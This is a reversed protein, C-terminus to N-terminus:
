GSGAAAGEAPPEVDIASALEARLLQRRRIGFAIVFGALSVLAGAFADLFFHNGTVVIAIGQLIPLAFGFARLLPHRFMWVFTIGIVLAWGFHLSPVAAFPNAFAGMSENQYSVDSFREMTDVFGLHPMLRPPAAPFWFYIALGIAGSAILTNRLFMYVPRQWIYLPVAMVLVLPFHGWFYVANFFDILWQHPLFLSQIQAERFIGLNRELDVISAGRHFAEAARDAVAGRVMEYILFPVGVLAIEALFRLIARMSPITALIGVRQQM